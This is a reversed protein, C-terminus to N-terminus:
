GRTVESTIYAVLAARNAWGVQKGVLERLPACLEKLESTRAASRELTIEAHRVGDAHDRAELVLATDRDVRDGTWSVSSPLYSDDNVQITYIGGIISGKGKPLLRGDEGLPDDEPVWYYVLKKSTTFRKGAYVFRQETLNDSM